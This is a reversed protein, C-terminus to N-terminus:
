KMFEHIIEDEHKEIWDLKSLLGNVYRIAEEKQQKFLWEEVFYHLKHLLSIRLFAIVERSEIDIEGFVEKYSDLFLRLKKFDFGQKNPFGIFSEVGKVLDYEALGFKVDDFDILTAVEHEHFILQGHWFDGHIMSLNTRERIHPFDKVFLQNHHKIREISEIIFLDLESKQNKKLTQNLISDSNKWLKGVFYHEEFKVNVISTHECPVGITQKHLKALTRAANILKKESFDYKNGKIYESISFVKGELEVISEGEKTLMPKAVPFDQKKLQLLVINLHKIKRVNFFHKYERLFYVGKTTFIQINLNVFGGEVIKFNKLKGLNYHELVFELLKKQNM